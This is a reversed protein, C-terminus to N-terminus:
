PRAGTKLFLYIIVVSLILGFLIADWVSGASARVFLSQDYFSVLKVDPPLERKM